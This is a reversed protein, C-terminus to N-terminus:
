IYYSQPVPYPRLGARAVHVRSTPLGARAPVVNTKLELSGQAQASAIGLILCSLLLLKKM